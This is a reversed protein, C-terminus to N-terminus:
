ITPQQLPADAAHISLSVNPGLSLNPCKPHASFALRSWHSSPQLLGHVNGSPTPSWRTPAGRHAPTVTTHRGKKQLALALACIFSSALLGTGRIAPQQRPHGSGIRFSNRRPGHRAAPNTCTCGAFARRRHSCGRRGLLQEDLLQRNWIEALRNCWWPAGLASAALCAVDLLYGCVNRRLQPARRDLSTRAM